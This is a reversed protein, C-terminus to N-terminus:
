TDSRVSNNRASGKAPSTTTPVSTLSPPTNVDRPAFWAVRLIVKFTVALKPVADEAFDSPRDQVFHELLQVVPHHAILREIECDKWGRFGPRALPFCEDLGIAFSLNGLRKPREFVDVEFDNTLSM